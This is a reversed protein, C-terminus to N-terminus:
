WGPSGLPVGTVLISNVIPAGHQATFGIDLVGDTVDVMVPISVASFKGGGADFVDLNTVVTTGEFTVSFVRAGAASATLEAFGLDVRYTGEPVTFKYGTMSVRNDQFRKDDTTGAIAHKTSRTSSAGTYGYSGAAYHKDAAYATGDGDKTARGGANVGAQFSPVVVTVPVQIYSHDPDNTGLVILARHVGPGFGTSDVTVKVAASGDPAVTGEVPSASLWPVDSFVPLGSEVLYANGSNQGTLWLNGIPDLEIGAGGFGGGDPHPLARITACTTPDVLYITDTDSNTQEWLLGFAPNYALGAIAPDEPSCQNLTEGPTAHSPGAVKYIIGENWGGVYFVDDTADYAVGRQSTATWPDGTITAKVTGDAPDLGYLGNDGGVNVQWVLGRGADFAMDAAWEGAWATSWSRLPDGTTSFVSDTGATPDSIVVTGPVGVGWPVGLGTPWSSLVDGDGAVPKPANVAVGSWVGKATKASADAVAPKPRSAVAPAVGAELNVENVTFTLPAHGDPNSITVTSTGTKGPSLVFVLGDKDVAAHPQIRHLGIVIPGTTKGDVITVDQTATVYGDLSVKATWDGAPGVLRFAGSADTVAKVTLPAGKWTADMTVTAGVLPDGTHANAVTGTLAGFTAPLTVTLDVPITVTRQTPADTLLVVLGKYEGPALDAGGLTLTIAQTGGAPVSGSAPAEDIWPADIFPTITGHGDDPAWDTPENLNGVVLATNIFGDDKGMAELPLDFSVTREGVTAPASAVIDYTAVDVLYVVPDSEQLGFLDVVYEIGVDQGPQGYWFDPPDGTSPDQDTDLFVYGTVSSMDTAASFELQMSVVSQGDSGAAVGVIDVNAANDGVPDTIIPMVPVGSTDAVRPIGAPVHQRSWSPERHARVRAAPLDPFTAGLDREKAEWATPATGANALQIVATATSGYEVTATVETPDVAALGGALAADLTVDGGDTMTVPHTQPQYPESAVEVTYSGPRLRLTYTGDIATRATRGGPTATVTAGAIPSGDNADTVTGHVLGSPVTEIRYASNAAIIAEDLGLQLADTGTANEIGVLANRGDGPNAPNAGYLLDIVGSEWLKVEFSLPASVGVARVNSFELVFARNPADGTVGYDVESSSDLYLDQWLPYIAANPTAKSPIGSPIGNYQDADLFNLYGNDSIWVQEYSAGYFSVPFPLKLRGVIEDGWLATQTGADVWDFAVPRCGHGFDDLKRYLGRDVTIDPGDSTIDVTASETCGGASIRLTYDGIPLVLDYAGSADTVVPDIPVGIAAVQADEIPGGDESATIHGRVHFRPLPDLAANATTVQDKTITVSGLTKGYYGFARITVGYDGAALFLHFTGDAATTANFARSGSDATVTAGAIPAGGDAATVTGQLTGGTKVLAVAAAADIRGEGYVNNPDGGPAAGCTEDIRDIATSKVANAVGDFDGALTPRASLLLAIEGTTHPTAMSTGSYAEYGGGPVSSVVDVGPASIDPNWAKGDASPGRGSFDAIVDKDDTAGASIVEPFDGPAGGQGCEPGPNGSAFVPIIGAARWARVTELYFQDGPGGGWSNNVVDPRKSPDPNDGALDTPALIWQGASLLAQESCGLDECGKAAIWRAGPAVGIDPTFPGPGDGGAITGMTHTGHGVNDCPTDGCVGTPDWWNYDNTFTGDGNNGRYNSVLAPHTYDVGTDVSAVVIGQGTIGDAWADPAGIKAVGWEPDGAAALVAAKASVPKVLAYVKPARVAAVGPLAAIKEALAAGGQVVVVNTLWYGTAPAKAARALAVAAKQSATATKQLASLVAKGRATRNKVKSPAALDAKASLEVIFSTLEGAALREKLGKEMRAAALAGPDQAPPASRAAVGLAQTLVLLTAFVLAVARRSM